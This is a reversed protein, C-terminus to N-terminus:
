GSRQNLSRRGGPTRLGAWFDADGIRHEYRIQIDLVDARGLQDPLKAVWRSPYGAKSHASFSHGVFGYKGGRGDLEVLSLRVARIQRDHMRMAIRKGDHVRLKGETPLPYASDACMGSGTGDPNTSSVCYSGVTARISNKHTQVQVPHPRGSGGAATATATTVLVALFVLGGVKARSAGRV